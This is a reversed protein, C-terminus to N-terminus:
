SPFVYGLSELITKLDQGHFTMTNCKFTWGPNVEVMETTEAVKGLGIGKGDYLFDMIVGATSLNITRTATMFDDQVSLTITYSHEIDAASIIYYSNAGHDYDLNTWVHSGDPAVLTVTRGNQNDLSTIKFKFIIKCYAGTDNATGDQNCRSATLNLIEPNSYGYTNFTSYTSSTSSGNSATITVVVYQSADVTNTLTLNLASLTTYEWSNILTGGSNYLFYKVKSFSSGFRWSVNWGFSLTTKGGGIYKGYHELYGTPTPTISKSNIIPGANNDTQNTYTWTFENIYTFDVYYVRVTGSYTYFDSLQVRFKAQIKGANDTYPRGSVYEYYYQFQNFGSANAVVETQGNNTYASTYYWNYTASSSTNHYAYVRYPETMKWYSNNVVSNALTVTGVKGTQPSPSHSTISLNLPAAIQLTTDKQVSGNVRVIAHLTLLRGDNFPVNLKYPSTSSGGSHAYEFLTYSNGVIRTTLPIQGSSATQGDQNIKLELTVATNVVAGVSADIVFPAIYGDLGEYYINLDPNLYNYSYGGYTFNFVEDAKEYKLYIIAM